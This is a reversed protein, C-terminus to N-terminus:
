SESGDEEDMLAEMEKRRREAEVMDSKSKGDIDSSDAKTRLANRRETLSMAVEQNVYVGWGEWVAGRSCSTMPGHTVRWRKTLENERATPVTNVMGYALALKNYAARHCGKENGIERNKEKGKAIVPHPSPCAYTEMVSWRGSRVKRLTNEWVGIPLLIAKNLVLRGSKVDEYGLMLADGEISGGTRVRTGSPEIENGLTLIKPLYIQIPVRISPPDLFPSAVPDRPAFIEFTSTTSLPLSIPSPANRAIGSQLPPFMAGLRSSGQTMTSPRSASAQDTFTSSSSAEPPFPSASLPQEQSSSILSQLSPRSWQASINLHLDKPKWLGTDFDARQALPQSPSHFNSQGDDDEITSMQTDETASGASLIRQCLAPTQQYQDPFAMAHSQSVLVTASSMPQTPRGPTYSTAPSQAVQKQRRLHMSQEPNFGLPDSQGNQLVGSPTNTNNISATTSAGIFQTSQVPSHQVNSAQSLCSSLNSKVLPISRGVGPKAAPGANSITPAQLVNSQAQVHEHLRSAVAQRAHPTLLPILRQAQETDLNQLYTAIDSLIPQNTGPALGPPHRHSRTVKDSSTVSEHPSTAPPGMQYPLLALPRPVCPASGPVTNVEADRLADAADDSKNSETGIDEDDDSEPSLQHELTFDRRMNWERKTEFARPSRFHPERRAVEFVQSKLREALPGPAVNIKGDSKARAEKIRQMMAAAMDPKRSYLPTPPILPLGTAGDPIAHSAALEAEVALDNSIAIERQKLGKERLEFQAQAFRADKQYNRLGNGDETEPTEKPHETQLKQYNNIQRMTVGAELLLYLARQRSKFCAAYYRTREHYDRPINILPPLPQEVKPPQIGFKVERYQLRESEESHFTCLEMAALDPKPRIQTKTTLSSQRLEAATSSGVHGNKEGSTAHWAIGPAKGRPLVLPHYEFDWLSPIEWRLAAKLAKGDGEYYDIWRYLFEVFNPVLSSTVQVIDILIRLMEEELMLAGDLTRREFMTLAPAQHPLLPAKSLSGEDQADLRVKKPSSSKQALISDDVTWQVLWTWLETCTEHAQRMTFDQILGMFIEHGTDMRYVHISQTYEEYPVLTPLPEVNGIVDQLGLYRDDLLDLVKGFSAMATHVIALCRALHSLPHVHLTPQLPRHLPLALNIRHGILLSLALHLCSACCPPLSM